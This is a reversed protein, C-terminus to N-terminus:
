RDIHNRVYKSLASPLATSGFYRCRATTIEEVDQGAKIKSLDSVLSFTARFICEVEANGWVARAEQGKHGQAEGILMRVQKRSAQNFLVRDQYSFLHQYVKGKAPVTISKLSIAGLDMDYGGITFTGSDLKVNVDEDTDNRWVLGGACNWLKDSISSIGVMASEVGVGDIIEQRDIVSENLQNNVDTHVDNKFDNLQNTLDEATKKSFLFAAGVSLLAILYISM